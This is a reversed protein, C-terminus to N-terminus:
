SVRAVPASSAADGAAGGQRAGGLPAAEFDSGRSSADTAVVGLMRGGADAVMRMMRRVADHPTQHLRGVAVVGSSRSVLALAGGTVLLPATDVVVFDFEESLRALLRSMAESGLLEVPRQSSSGAPLVTLEGEFGDVRRVAANLDYGELVDSLGPSALMDMRAAVDPARLDADVLMVQRGARAFSRALGVAVTTRGEDELPSVVAVSDSRRDPDFFILSDRLREFARDARSGAAGAFAAKPVGALLAAGSLRELETPRRVTRDLRDVAVVLAPAILVALLLALFANRTPHPSAKSAHPSAVVRLPRTTADRVATLRALTDRVERRQVPNRTLALSQRVGVIQKDLQRRADGRVYNTLATAYANAASVALSPSAATATLTLWGTETSINANLDGIDGYPRRMLRATAGAVQGLGAYGELTGVFNESPSQDTGGIATTTPDPQVVVSAEYTKPQHASYAYVAAPILVVCAVVVWWRRRFLAIVDRVTAGRTALRSRSDTGPPIARM